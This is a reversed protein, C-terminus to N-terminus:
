FSRGASVTFRQIFGLCQQADRKPKFTGRQVVWDYVVIDIPYSTLTGVLHNEREWAEAPERTSFIGSPLAGKEGNFDWVVSPESRV